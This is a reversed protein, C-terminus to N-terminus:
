LRVGPVLSGPLRLSQAELSAVPYASYDAAYYASPRHNGSAGIGGFPAGGSAGTLPRNWNVVGARSHRYFLEWLGADDTLIGAALGYRTANAEAMAAGFDEVRILQLLPGFYEEDPRASVASVDLLGPSLLPLDAILRRMPRLIKAGSRALDAQVDLLAQAATNSIVPGMFPEPRSDPCGVRIGDIATALKHVFEDGQGGRPVVLRRACTCRQGATVYASQLTFYVAARLDRARHVILPNNGGMELALIKRTDGAFQRHLAEGTASSGTFFLGDIGAHAALAVGTPMAGQVLNIVGAPLGSQQWLRIMRDAVGPTQESPKFVITNGALLAPVIHGNPLHGPFNYPGFVAIVGHPRHRVRSCVGDVTKVREGSRSEYADISLDVKGIMTAVEGQAEWSPKGTERAIDAALSTQEDRLVQQYRRLFGIRRALMMTAWNPLAARAAGVALDVDSVAAAAGSWLLDGTCPNESRMAEGRGSQWRGDIFLMQEAM